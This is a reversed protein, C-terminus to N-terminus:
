RLHIVTIQLLNFPLQLKCYALHSGAHIGDPVYAGASAVFVYHSVKGQMHVCHQAALVMSVHRECAAYVVMCSMHSARLCALYPHLMHMGCLLSCSLWCYSCMHQAASPMHQCGHHYAFLVHSQQELMRALICSLNTTISNCSQRCVASGQM